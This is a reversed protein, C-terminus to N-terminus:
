DPSLKQYLWGDSARSIALEYAQSMNVLRIYGEWIKQYGPPPDNKRNMYGATIAMTVVAAGLNDPVALRNHKAFDQLVGIEVDTFMVEMPLEPTERGLLTMAALRWAIVANITVAREIREGRQHRLFEVKCGSKLIRHWDEIRWRLRYREVVQEAEQCSNVPLTTLLFWEISKVGSPADIEQVHVLNLPMPRPDKSGNGSPIPLQVERWRLSAQAVRAKQKSVAKQSRSSRRASRHGVFVELRGQESQRRIVDFLKAVGKGLSRNYRARVLLEVNGLRRRAAFLDFCDGERDMVSVLRVGELEGAMASCERLGRSWRQMKDDAISGYEIHPVGLPVGQVDLVLMSHMHIGLTGSSAKNKGILGMGQCEGHDTFNLDTGDQVCLVETQNQMRQLTRARHPSLNNQPTVESEAPQDIMRYHGFVSAHDAGAASPFSAMPQRAQISASKVLRKSLRADGLVAGDFENHAWVEIDLGEGTDRPPVRCPLIGLRKRWDRELEYVYVSKVSQQAENGAMRGRGSTEGIHLWNSARLSVGSQWSEVFTEVLYPRYGYRSDFDSGLRRLCLGLAKSALNACSVGPRILFRSLGVVRNLQSCRQEHDWGMWRDRCGLTLASAAFGLAGLCGHESVILYRLQAGVHVVAGRPHEREVLENWM